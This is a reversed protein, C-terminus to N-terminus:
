NPKRDREGENLKVEGKWTWMITSDALKNWHAKCLPVRNDTVLVALNRKCAPCGKIKELFEKLRTNM